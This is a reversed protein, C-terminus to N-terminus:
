RSTVEVDTRATGEHTLPIDVSAVVGRMRLPATGADPSVRLDVVEDLRISPDPTHEVPITWSRRVSTELMTVAASMASRPSTILPSSFFRTVVGYPGSTAMPGTRQDVVAQFTPQGSDGQQQGRAVVRNYVKERSETRKAAIVTGGEGDTMTRSPAAGEDVPPLVYLVGDRGERLRAPWADAIEFLADIRSEGWTMSTPCARDTLRPDVVLGMHGGLLRRMESALTGGARPVTPSTLRDEEVRQLLSKGSVTVTGRSVDSGTVLFAGAPETHRLGTVLSEVEITVRLVQGFCALPSEPTTPTFDRAPEDESVSGLRPVTLSLTGQVQQSASWSVSGSVVPVRGLWRSGLWSDVRAGYVFSDSLLNAPIM